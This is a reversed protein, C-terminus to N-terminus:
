EEDSGEVMETECVETELVVEETGQVENEEM